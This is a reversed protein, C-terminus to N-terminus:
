VRFGRRPSSADAGHYAGGRSRSRNRSHRQWESPKQPCWVGVLLSGILGPGQTVGIASIDDMTVEARRLAEDIVPLITKLTTGPLWNPFSEATGHMFRIQTAIINPSRERTSGGSRRSDRRLKIRNGSHVYTRREYRSVWLGGITGLNHISM